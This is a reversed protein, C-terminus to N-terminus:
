GLARYATSTEWIDGRQKPQTAIGNLGCLPTIQEFCQPSTAYVVARYHGDAM